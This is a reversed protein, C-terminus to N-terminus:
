KLPSYTSRSAAFQYVDNHFLSFSSSLVAAIIYHGMYNQNEWRETRDTYGFRYPESIADLIIFILVLFAASLVYGVFKSAVTSTANMFIPQFTYPRICQWFIEGIVMALALSGSKRPSGIAAGLGAGVICPTLLGSIKNVFSM